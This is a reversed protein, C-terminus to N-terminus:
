PTQVTVVVTADDFPAYSAGDDDTATGTVTDKVTTNCTNIRGVFQCSYNGSVAIVKPLPGAGSAQGCTTSIVNGQVQTINGYVDDTLSNLTLTDIKSTNTV